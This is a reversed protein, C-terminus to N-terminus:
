STTSFSADQAATNEPMEESNPPLLEFPMDWKVSDIDEPTIQCPIEIVFKKTPQIVALPKLDDIGGFGGVITVHLERLRDIAALCKAAGHLQEVGEFTGTFYSQRLCGHKSSRMIPIFRWELHVRRIQEFRRPIVSKQFVDLTDHSYWDAIVHFNPCSYLLDITESYSRCGLTLVRLSSSVYITGLLV